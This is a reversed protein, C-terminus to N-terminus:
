LGDVAGVDVLLAGEGALDRDSSTDQGTDNVGGFHGVGDDDSSLVQVQANEERKTNQKQMNSSTTQSVPHLTGLYLRYSFRCLFRAAWQEGAKRTSTPSVTVTPAYGMDRCMRVGHTWWSVWVWYALASRQGLGDSEVDESHRLVLRSGLSEGLELSPAQLM